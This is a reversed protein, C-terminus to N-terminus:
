QTAGLAREGSMTYMLYNKYVEARVKVDVDQKLNIEKQGKREDEGFEGRNAQIAKQVEKVTDERVKEVKAAIAEESAGPCSLCSPRAIALHM